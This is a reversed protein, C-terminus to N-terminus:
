EKDGELEKIECYNGFILPVKFGIITIRSRLVQVLPLLRDDCGGITVTDALMALIVIEIIPDNSIKVHFGAHQLYKCFIENNKHDSVYAIKKGFSGEFTTVYDIKRKNSHHYLDFTDVILLNM